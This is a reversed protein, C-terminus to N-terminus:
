ISACDGTIMEDGLYIRTCVEKNEWCEITEMEIRLNEKLFQILEEKTM